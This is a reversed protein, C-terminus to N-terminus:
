RSFPRYHGKDAFALLERDGRSDGYATIRCAERNTIFDSNAIYDSLRKVKEKGYCNPTSFRGTVLKDKVEIETALVRVDPRSMFFCKVWNLMSATVIVVMNGDALGNDIEKMAMPRLMDGHADAFCRCHNDFTDISMGAFFYAFVKEKVKYNPYLHLKMMVILPAYLMFGIITPLWGFVHRIFAVFTDGYTITGDFDFVLLQRKMREDMIKGVSEDM